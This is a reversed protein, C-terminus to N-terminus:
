NSNRATDCELLLSQGTLRSIISRTREGAGEAGTSADSFAPTTTTSVIIQDSGASHRPTVQVSPGPLPYHPNYFIIVIALLGVCTSRLFDWNSTIAALLSLCSGVLQHLLSLSKHKYYQRAM